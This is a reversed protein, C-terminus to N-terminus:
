NTPAPVASGPTQKQIVKPVTFFPGSTDRASSLAMSRDVQGGPVDERFRNVADSMHVLPEVGTTDVQNLQEVFGILRALDERIAAKEATSFSLRALVSLKGILADTVEMGFRVFIASSESGCRKKSSRPAVAQRLAAGALVPQPLYESCMVPYAM